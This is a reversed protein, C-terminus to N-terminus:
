MSFHPLTQDECPDLAARYTRLDNFHVYIDSRGRPRPHQHSHGGAQGVCIGERCLQTLQFCIKRMELGLLAGGAM